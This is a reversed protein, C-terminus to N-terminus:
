SSVMYKKIESLASVVSVHQPFNPILKRDSFLFARSVGAHVGALIDSVNDGVMFSESLNINHDLAAEFFMGPAPKRRYDLGSFHSISAEPHTYCAYYGDIHCNRKEFEDVLWGMFEQFDEETYYGRGVGSQNTIIFVLYELSNAHRVLDFIGNVFVCDATKYVYGYDINVVGDRDLFLAKKQEQGLRRVVRSFIM